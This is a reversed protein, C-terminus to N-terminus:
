ERSLVRPATRDRQPLNLIFGLAWGALALLSLFLGLRFATPEYRFVVRGGDRGPVPVAMFLGYSRFIPKPDGNVWAKWGPAFSEGFVLWRGAEGASPTFAGGLRPKLSRASPIGPFNGRGPPTVEFQVECPSLRNRGVDTQRLHIRGAWSGLRDWLSSRGDRISRRSPSLRVAGKEGDKELFVEDELFARPDLLAQFVAKRDIFERV